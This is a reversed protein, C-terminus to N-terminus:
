IQPHDAWVWSDPSRCVRAAVNVIHPFYHEAQLCVYSIYPFLFLSFRHPLVQPSMPLLSRPIPKLVWQTGTVQMCAEIPKTTSTLTTKTHYNAWNKSGADWYYHFQDQSPRCCLWWFQMDMMKAKRPAITKNTVGAATSNDMQIPSKPQSWGMAILTQRHPIMEQATIFLAPLKSEAALAM